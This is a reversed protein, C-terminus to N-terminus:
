IKIFNSEPEVTLSVEPTAIDNSLAVKSLAAKLTLLTLNCSLILIRNKTKVERKEWSRFGPRHSLKRKVSKIGGGRGDM